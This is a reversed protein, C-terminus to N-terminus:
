ARLLPTPRDARATCLSLASPSPTCERQPHLTSPYVRRPQKLILVDAILTPSFYAGSTFHSPVCMSIPLPAFMVPLRSDALAASPAPLEDSSVVPNNGFVFPRYVGDYNEHGHFLAPSSRVPVSVPICTCATSTPYMSCM